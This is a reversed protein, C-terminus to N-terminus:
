NFKNQREETWWAQDGLVREYEILVGSTEDTYAKSEVQIVYKGWDSYDAVIKGKKKTDSGLQFAYYEVEDGPKHGPVIGYKKLWEATHRDVAGSIKHWAGDMIDVLESSGEWYHMRELDQTLEYGDQGRGSKLVDILQETVENKEEEYDEDNEKIQLYGLVEPLMKEVADALVEPTRDSPRNPIENM